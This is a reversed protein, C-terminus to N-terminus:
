IDVPATEWQFRERSILACFRRAAASSKFIPYVFGDSENVEVFTEADQFYSECGFVWEKQLHCKCYVEGLLGLFQHVDFAYGFPPEPRRDFFKAVYAMMNLAFKSVSDTLVTYEGHQGVGYTSFAGDWVVPPDELILDSLLIGIRWNGQNEVWFVLIDETLKLKTPKRWEDQRCWIDKANGYLMYYETLSEPLRRGISQEWQAIEQRTVSDSSTFPRLFREAFAALLAWRNAHGEVNDHLIQM